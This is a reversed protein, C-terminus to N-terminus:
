KRSPEGGYASRKEKRYTKEDRERREKKGRESKRRKQREVGGHIKGMNIKRRTQTKSQTM